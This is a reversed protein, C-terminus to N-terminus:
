SIDGQAGVADERFRMPIGTMNNMIDEPGLSWSSILSYGKYVQSSNYRLPGPDELTGKENYSMRDQFDTYKRENLITMSKAGLPCKGCLCNGCKPSCEVGISEEKFFQLLEKSPDTMGLGTECKIFKRVDIPVDNTDDRKKM